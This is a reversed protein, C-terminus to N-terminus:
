TDLESCFLERCGALNFGGEIDFGVFVDTCEEETIPEEESSPNIKIKMQRVRVIRLIKKLIGKKM